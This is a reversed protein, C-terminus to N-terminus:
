GCRPFLKSVSVFLWITWEFAFVNLFVSFKCWNEDLYKSNQNLLQSLFNNFPYGVLALLNSFASFAIFIFTSMQRLRKRACVILILSNFALGYIIDLGYLLDIIKHLINMESSMTAKNNINNM